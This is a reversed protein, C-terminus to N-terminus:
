AELAKIDASERLNSLGSKLRREDAYDASLDEECRLFIMLNHTWGIQAVLPQVRQDDRYLLYFERMYFVNRRFFGSIGTIRKLPIIGKGSELYFWFDASKASIRLNVDPFYDAGIQTIQPYGM